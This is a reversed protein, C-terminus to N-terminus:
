DLCDVRKYKFVIKGNVKEFLFKEDAMEWVKTKPKQIGSENEVTMKIIIKGTEEIFGTFSFIWSEEDGETAGDGSGNIIQNGVIYFTVYEYSPSDFSQFCYRRKKTSDPLGKPDEATTFGTFVYGMLTDYRVQVMKGEKGEILFTKESAGELKQIKTGFPITCLKESSPDPAKRLNLGSVSKVYLYTKEAEKEPPISNEMIDPNSAPKKQM